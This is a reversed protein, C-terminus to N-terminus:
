VGQDNEKSNLVVNEPLPTAAPKTQIFEHEILAAILKANWQRLAQKLGYLSKNLKCVKNDNNDGFSLPLTIYVNEKQSFGKAVLRAKYM